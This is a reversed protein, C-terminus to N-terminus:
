ESETALVCKHNNRTAHFKFKKQCKECGFPTEGTHVRSHTKLHTSHAFTRGCIDCIHPKLKKHVSSIHKRTSQAKTFQMSCGDYPCKLRPDVAGVHKAECETKGRKEYFQKGCHFCLFIPRVKHKVKLHNRLNSLKSKLLSKSLKCLKCIVRGSDNQCKTFYEWVLSKNSREEKGSSEVLSMEETKKKENFGSGKIRDDEVAQQEKDIHSELIHQLLDEELNFQEISIKIFNNDSSFLKRTGIFIKGCLSCQISSEDRKTMYSWIEDIKM